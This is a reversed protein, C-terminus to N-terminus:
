RKRCIAYLFKCIMQKATEKGAGTKALITLYDTTTTPPIPYIADNRALEKDVTMINKGRGMEKVAQEENM